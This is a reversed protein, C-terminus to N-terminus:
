LEGLGGGQQKERERIWARAKDLEGGWNNLLTALTTRRWYRGEKERPIDAHYFARVSEVADVFDLEVLEGLGSAELAHVENENWGTNSQRHFIGNLSLMRGKLPQTQQEPFTAGAKRRRRSSSPSVIKDEGNRDMKEERIKDIKDTVTPNDSPKTQTRPRGGKPGNIWNRVLTANVHAWEHVILADSGDEVELFRASILVRQLEGPAKKWRCVAALAEISLDEFRCSKRQQCFAWLRIVHMPAAEDGTLQILLQTKWHDPFDPEVIM